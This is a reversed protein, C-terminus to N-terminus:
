SELLDVPQARLIRALQAPSLAVAHRPSGAELWVTRENLLTREITISAGRFPFRPSDVRRAVVCGLKRPEVLGDAPVLAVLLRGDCDYAYARVTVGPFDAESQALEELRADVGAVRFVSAVEEVAPPWM